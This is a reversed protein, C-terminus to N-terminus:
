KGPKYEKKMIQDVNTSPKNYQDFRVFYKLLYWNMLKRSVPESHKIEPMLKTLPILYQVSVADEIGNYFERCMSGQKPNLQKYFVKGEEFIVKQFAEPSCYYYGEVGANYTLCGFYIDQPNYMKKKAM